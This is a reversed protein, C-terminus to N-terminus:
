ARIRDITALAGNGRRTVRADITGGSRVIGRRAEAPRPDGGAGNWFRQPSALTAVVDLEDGRALSDPGGYLTAGGDLAAQREPCAVGELQADWRRTGRVLL